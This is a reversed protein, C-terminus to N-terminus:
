RLPPAVRLPDAMLHQYVSHSVFRDSVHTLGARLSGLSLSSLAIAAQGRHRRSPYVFGDPRVSEDLSVMTAHLRAGFWQCWEYDPSSLMDYIGLKSSVDGNLNWLRLPRSFAVTAILGTREALPDVYFSGPRSVDNQCFRAEWVTTEPRYALYLWWFPMTGDALILSPPPGWRYARPVGVPVIGEKSYAARYLVDGQEVLTFSDSLGALLQESTPLSDRIEKPPENSKEQDM